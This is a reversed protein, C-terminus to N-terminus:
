RRPAEVAMFGDPVSRFYNDDAVFYTVGGLTVRVSAAPLSPVVIGIPAGIVIFGDRHRDFFRGEHFIYHNGRHSVEIHGRPVERVVSGHRGGHRGGHQELGEGSHRGGGHSEGGGGHGGGGHGGGGGKAMAPGSIMTALAFVLGAALARGTSGTIRAIPKM